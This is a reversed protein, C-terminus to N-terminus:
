PTHIAVVRWTNDDQLAMQVHVPNQGLEGMRILFRDYSEFFAYSIDGILSPRPSPPEGPRTNLAQQVWHIDINADIATDSVLKIGQKLWRTVRGGDSGVAGDVERDLEAKVQTRVADMDILRALRVPDNAAVAQDLRYVYIYPWSVLALATLLVIVVLYKM